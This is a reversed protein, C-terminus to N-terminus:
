AIPTRKKKSGVEGKPGSVELRFASLRALCKALRGKKNGTTGLELFM